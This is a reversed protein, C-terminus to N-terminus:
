LSHYSISCVSFVLQAGVVTDGFPAAPLSSSPPDGPPQSSSHTTPWSIELWIKGRSTPPLPGLPARLHGRLCRALTSALTYTPWSICNFPPSAAGPLLGERNRSGWSAGPTGVDCLGHIELPPKCMELCGQSQSERVNQQGSLLSQATKNAVMEGAGLGSGPM